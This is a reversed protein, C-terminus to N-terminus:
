KLYITSGHGTYYNPTALFPGSPANLPVQMNIQAIGCLLTPAGGAYQVLPVGVAGNYATGPNNLSVPGPPNLAGTACPPNLPGYGTGFLSVLSGRAAPNSPSNLSGDQNLAAAQTSVDPHLRFIGQPGFIDIGVPYPGFTSGHYTLTVSATAGSVEFPVQANVQRSQVYILPAPIGNFTVQVGGLSLPTEGQPGPQYVVGDDPGIGFGTLSVFEGPAVFGGTFTAVNVVDPSLCAPASWGPQGFRIQALVPAGNTDAALLVSGDGAVALGLPFSQYGGLYTADALGGQANLHVLVADFTGGFCPQPASATALFGAGATSAFYVEGVANLALKPAGPRYAAWPVYTAWAIASGDPKLRAIFGGTGDSWLPVEAVPAYTGPTTPFGPGASGGVYIGGASDMQITQGFAGGTGGLFTSFVIKGTPDLRTVFANQAGALGPQLAGATVPFDPSSTQGTVMANGAADVAVANADDPNKESGNSGALRVTYVFATGDANLKTVFPHFDATTGAIYANGHADLRIATPTALAAPLYTLYVFKSGDASLKGAFAGGIPGTPQAANPTTPLSSYMTGVVYVNGAPDVAIDRPSEQPGGSNPGGVLTSFVMRGAADVKVIDIPFCKVLTLIGGACGGGGATYVNQLADIVVSFGPAVIPHTVISGAAPQARLTWAAGILLLVPLVARVSTYRITGHNLCFCGCIQEDSREDSREDTLTGGSEVLNEKDGDSTM